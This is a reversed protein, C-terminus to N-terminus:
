FQFPHTQFQLQLWKLKPKSCCLSCIHQFISFSSHSYFSLTNFPILPITSVSFSLFSPILFHSSFRPHQFKFSFLPTISDHFLTENEPSSISPIPFKTPLKQKIPIFPPATFKQKLPFFPATIECGSCFSSSHQPSPNKPWLM